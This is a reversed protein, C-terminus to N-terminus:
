RFPTSSKHTASGALHQINQDIPLIDASVCGGEAALVSTLPVCDGGGRVCCDDCAEALVVGADVNIPKVVLRAVGVEAVPSCFLIITACLSMRLTYHRKM